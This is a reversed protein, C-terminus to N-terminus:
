RDIVLEQWRAWVADDSFSQAQQYAGKSLAQRYDDDRCVTILKAALADVDGYAVLEGSVGPKILESPGYHTDYSVTPVGHAAAELIALCFGEFRSSLLMVQAQDYVHDIDDTYGAFHVCNELHQTKVLEHLLQEDRYDTAGDGYGYLDLTLWDLQDHAQKFAWLADDLHKEYFMRAVIVVKGRIRQSQAIQPASLREKPVSGVPINVIPVTTHLRARMDQAQAKTPTIVMDTRALLETEAISPYTLASHEPDHYDAFHINHFHEIKRAATTMALMARNCVDFRDSIFTDAGQNLEDLFVTYMQTPNMLQWQRGDAAILRYNTAVVGEGRRRYTIEIGVRGRHSYFCELSVFRTKADDTTAFFSVSAKLVVPIM